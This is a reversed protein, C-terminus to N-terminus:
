KRTAFSDSEDVVGDLCSFNPIDKLVLNFKTAVGNYQVSRMGRVFDEPLNKDGVLQSTVRNTCNAVVIPAYVEEGSDLAM